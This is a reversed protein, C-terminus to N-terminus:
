GAESKWPFDLVCVSYLFAGIARWDRRHDAHHVPVKTIGCCQLGDPQVGPRDHVPYSQPVIRDCCRDADPEIDPLFIFISGYVEAEHCAEPYERHESFSGTTHYVVVANGEAPRVFPPFLDIHLHDHDCFERCFIHDFEAVSHYVQRVAQGGDEHDPLDSRADYVAGPDHNRGYVCVSESVGALERGTRHKQWHANGAICKGFGSGAIGGVHYEFRQLQHGVNKAVM